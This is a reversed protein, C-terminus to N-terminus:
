AECLPAGSDAASQLAAAQAAPDLNSTEEAQAPPPPSTAASRPTAAEVQRPTAESPKDQPAVPQNIRRTVIRLEGSVLRHALVTLLEEDEFHRGGVQLGGEALSHRLMARNHPDGLFQQLYQRADQIGHFRLLEERRVVEIEQPGSRLTFRM